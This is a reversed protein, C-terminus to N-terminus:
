RREPADRSMGCIFGGRQDNLLCWFFKLFACSASVRVVTFKGHVSLSLSSRGGGSVM